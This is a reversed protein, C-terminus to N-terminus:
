ILRYQTTWVTSNSSSPTVQLQINGNAINVALSGTSGNLNVGGYVSYDVNAGDTVAQVTAVSYKAGTSDVGKILFEIGTIGIIATQAITQNAVIGITTVTGWTVQTNGLTISNSINANTTTVNGTNANVNGTLTIDGTNISVNSTNNGAFINGTLNASGNSISVNSSANGAFINGTLNASGNSINVNSTTNGIFM